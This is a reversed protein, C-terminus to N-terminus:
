VEPEQAVVTDTAQETKVPAQTEEAPKKNKGFANGM